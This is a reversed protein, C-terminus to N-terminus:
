QKVTLGVRGYASALGSSSGSGGGGGGGGGMSPRTTPVAPLEDMAARLVPVAPANMAPAAPPTAEAAAPSPATREFEAMAAELERALEADELGGSGLTDNAADSFLTQTESLLTRHDAIGDTLKSLQGYLKELKLGKFQSHATSLVNVTERTFEADSIEDLMKQITECNTEYRNVKKMVAHKQKVCSKVEQLNRARMANLKRRELENASNQLTNLQFQALGLQKRLATEATERAGSASSSSSSSCTAFCSRLAGGIGSM